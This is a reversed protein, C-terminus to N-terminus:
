LSRVKGPVQPKGTDASRLAAFCLALSELNGAADHSPPRDEEIACLLEAMTGQFGELFWAGQLDPRATGRATTLTVQQSGLGPGISHLTGKDGAVFTHDLPGHPVAADFVLSAQARDYEILVQALMPPKPKQRPARTLTAFVRRAQRGGMFQTVIDFWHIAFDYLVLHHIKDFPTGATWSHDWYVGLHASMVDGIVGRDIAHRIYSFHPAWRGNQNVALRRKRRRALAVLRRGTDLDLVFPKQSLVHKDARLADAILAVREAPHTAIDVVEIDDRRLLLRHDAYVDARPYFEDRRKRANDLNIDAFAVVNFGAHKYARLHSQTIGGCGILGIPPNYRRPAPPRYPLDPAKLATKKATDSLGYTKKKAM